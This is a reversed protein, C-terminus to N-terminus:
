QKVGERLSAFKRFFLIWLSGSIAFLFFATVWAYVPIFGSAVRFVVSGAQLFVQLSIVLYIASAFWTAFMEVPSEIAWLVYPLTFWFLALVGSAALLIIGILNRRREAARKAILRAQFRNAFGSAPSVPRAMHLVVNVEALAMCSPCARLHSQLDNKQETTLPENALLWDEFPRHNM